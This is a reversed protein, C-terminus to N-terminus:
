VDKTARSANMDGEGGGVEDVRAAGSDDAVQVVKADGVAGISGMAKADGDVWM